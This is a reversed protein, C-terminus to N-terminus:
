YSHTSRVPDVQIIEVGRARIEELAKTDAQTDTILRDVKDLGGSIFNSHHGIKSNDALITRKGKVRTLMLENVAAEQLISTTAGEHATLGSVGIFSKTATVMNLNNLAFDGVMSEKPIRLEGGTLVVNLNSKFCRLLIKGNNTIVTVHHAEIYDLMLLATSSTNIFIIDGNEVLTAAQRAIAHKSQEHPSCHINDDPKKKIIRAGGYFREILGLEEFHDLDRRITLSSVKFDSAIADVRIEGQASLAEYIQKRRNEVIDSNQKM